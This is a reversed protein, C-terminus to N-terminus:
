QVFLGDWSLPVADFQLIPRNAGPIAVLNTRWQVGSAGVGLFRFVASGGELITVDDPGSTILVPGRAWSLIQADLEAGFALDNDSTSSGHLEAALVNSGANLFLAPLPLSGTDFATRSQTAPTLANVGGPPMNFRY